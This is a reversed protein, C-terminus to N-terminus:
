GLPKKAMVSCSRPFQPPCVKKQEWVLLRRGDELGPLKVEIDAKLIAGLQKAARKGQALEEALAGKKPFILQGGVHCYPAAYELLAPLSAVARATVLDFEGRYEDKHAWEEARGHVVAVDQLQLTEIVHRLFTVKKGTAEVLVTQWKPRVIKLPLGPFGAGAGIDLLRTSPKDYVLLLSLSDLFHKFLVEQPNTIATLNIRTNWDLLEQRYRLFQAVVLTAREPELGLRDLGEIFADPLENSL